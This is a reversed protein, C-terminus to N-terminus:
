IATTNAAYLEHLAVILDQTRLILQLLASTSLFPFDEPSWSLHKTTLGVLSM